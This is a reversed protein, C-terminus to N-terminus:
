AISISYKVTYFGNFCYFQIIMLKGNNATFSTTAEYAPCSTIAIDDVSGGVVPTNEQQQLVPKDDVQEYLCDDIKEYVGDDNRDIM